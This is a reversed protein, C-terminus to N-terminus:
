SSSGREAGNKGREESGGSLERGPAASSGGGFRRGDAEGPSSRGPKMEEEEEGPAGEATPRPRPESCPQSGASVGRRAEPPQPPGHPLPAARPAVRGPRAPRGRGAARRGAAESPLPAAGKRLVWSRTRSTPLWRTLFRQKEPSFFQGKHETELQKAYSMLVVSRPLQVGL